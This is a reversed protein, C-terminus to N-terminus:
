LEKSHNGYRLLWAQWHDSDVGSPGASGSLKHATKQIHCETVTVDILSPLNECQIFADPNPNAQNPHKMKLVKLM